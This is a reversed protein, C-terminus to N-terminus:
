HPSLIKRGVSAGMMTLEDMLKGFQEFNLAQFGDSYAMPPDPHIEILLGDAGAALAAKAMSPVRSSVGTAHSPDVIIPLDCLERLAPIVGIDLTHRSHKSFTRIGRECLIVQDNGEALIYEAAGMWEDLTASMGRKLLVPKSQRGVAKLLPFNQMNRSGVQIVDSVESVIDVTSPEMAETIISIGTTERVSQLIKIGEEGLGQFSHPSTRPKYAGGRLITVGFGKVFEAIKFLLDQTEVACPGAMVIFEDGGIVCNSHEIEIERVPKQEGNSRVLPYIESAGDVSEVGNMRLLIDPYLEGGTSLVSIVVRGDLTSVDTNCASQTNEKIRKVVEGVDRATAEPTMFIRM